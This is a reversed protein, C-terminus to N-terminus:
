RWSCLSSASLVSLLVLGFGADLCSHPQNVVGTPKGLRFSSVPLAEDQEQEEESASSTSIRRHTTSRAFSGDPTNERDGLEVNVEVDGSERLVLIRPSPGLQAGTTEDAGLRTKAAQM